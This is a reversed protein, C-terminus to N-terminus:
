NGPEVVEDFAEAAGAEVDPLAELRDAHEDPAGVFLIDSPQSPDLPHRRDFFFARDLGPRGAFTFLESLQIAM